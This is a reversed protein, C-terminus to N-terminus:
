YEWKLDKLIGELIVTNVPREIIKKNKDLLYFTPTRWVNYAAVTPGDIGKLDCTNIWPFKYKNTAAMWEQRVTDISVAFVELGKSSYTKYLEEVKPIAKECHECWSAWFLVLTYKSKVSDLEIAKGNVDTSKISPAKNGAKLANITATREELSKSKLEDSCTNQSLYKEVIYNYVGEWDTHDFSRILTNMVYENVNKNVDTRVLIFDICRKYAEESPPDAYYQLYEGIKDFIIESHLLNSDAFDINDFFHEKLFAAENPYEGADKRKMYTTFDPLLKAKILKSAYMDPNMKIQKEAQKRLLSSLDDIEKALDKLAAVNGKPDKKYLANGMQTLMEISDNLLKTKAIFEYYLKNEGSTIIIVKGAQNTDTTFVVNEKNFIFDNDAKGLTIRFLGEYQSDPFAFKFTCNKPLIVSDIGIIEKGYLRSFVVKKGACGNVTGSISYQSLSYLPMLLIAIFLLGTIKSSKIIRRIRGSKM